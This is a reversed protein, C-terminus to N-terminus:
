RADDCCDPTPIAGAGASAASATATAHADHAHAAHPLWKGAITWLGVAVLLISTVVPLRQRFPGAAWQVAAGLGALLPVTGAWFAAMAIAGDLPRGTGAATAVFAYLWGCPLLASVLGLVLARVFAPQGHVRLLAARAWSALGFGPRPARRSVLAGVGWAVMFVGAAISAAREIRAWSGISDVGAGLAGALAGLAAYSVLRGGHYAVHARLRAGREAAGGFFGVFGGCMAVCHTGGILSAVFVASVLPIM